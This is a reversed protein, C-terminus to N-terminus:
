CIKKDQDSLITNAAANNQNMTSASDSGSTAMGTDAPASMATSDASQNATTSENKKCAVMTGVALLTLITKKM